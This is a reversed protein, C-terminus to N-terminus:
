PIASLKQTAPSRWCWQQHYEACSVSNASLGQKLTTARYPTVSCATGSIYMLFFAMCVMYRQSPRAPPCRTMAPGLTRVQLSKGTKSADEVGVPRADVLIDTYATGGGESAIVSKYQRDTILYASGTVDPVGLELTEDVPRISCFAPESYPLGPIEFTLAWGPLYVRAADLPQIGRSGTFKATSMNSGYAFYWLKQGKLDQEFTAAM